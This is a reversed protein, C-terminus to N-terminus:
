WFDVLDVATHGLVMPWLNGLRLYLLAAALGFVFTALLEPVGNEWHILSFALASGIVYLALANRDRRQGLAALPLGRFTVEEVFGATVAFYVVVVLKLLMGEPVLHEYGFAPPEVPILKWALASSGAYVAWLLVAVPLSLALLAGARERGEGTRLGYRAPGVGARVRLAVLCLAPLAIWQALEASWYLVPEGAIAPLYLGNLLGAAFIPAAALLMAVRQGRALAQEPKPARAGSADAAPV